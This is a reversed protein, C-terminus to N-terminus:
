PVLIRRVLLLVGGLVIMLAAPVAVSVARVMRVRRRMEATDNLRPFPKNPVDVGLFECLPVWGEKVEYVLLREPSVRRRVEENHSEFVGVAYSKDEFRGDFTGEWILERNMRGIEAVAPVFPGILRFALRSFPSIMTIRSLAYITNRTSEYWREADRVSLLVKADPYKEMLNAYFTCAPWDVTAEYDNLFANWDTEGGRRAAEWFDVHEPHEFLETMHYCPGVRLEELAAKLSM